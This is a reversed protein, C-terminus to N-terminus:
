STLGLLVGLVLMILGFVILGAPISFLLSVGVTILIAGIGLLLVAVLAPLASIALLSSNQKIEEAM